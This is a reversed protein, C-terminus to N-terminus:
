GDSCNVGGVWRIFVGTACVGTTGMTGAAFGNAFLIWEIRSDTFAKNIASLSNERHLYDNELFYIIDNDPYSLSLEYVKRFTGAGHGVSVCYIQNENCGFAEWIKKIEIMTEECCNDCMIHWDVVSPPFHTLANILCNKYNIFDPKEKPYGADSTRYFIHLKGVELVENGHNLKKSKHQYYKSKIITLKRM